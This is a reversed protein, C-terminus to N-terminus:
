ADSGALLRVGRESVLEDSKEALELQIPLARAPVCLLKLGSSDKSRLIRYITGAGLLAVAGARITYTDVMSQNALALELSAQAHESTWRSVGVRTFEPLKHSDRVVELEIVADKGQVAILTLCEAPSPSTNQASSQGWSRPNESGPNSASLV